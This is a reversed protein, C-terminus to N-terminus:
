FTIGLIFLIIRATLALLISMLVATICVACATGFIYGCKAALSKKNKNDNM